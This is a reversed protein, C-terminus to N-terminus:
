VRLRVTVLRIRKLEAMAPVGHGAQKLSVTWGMGYGGDLRENWFKELHEPRRGQRVM